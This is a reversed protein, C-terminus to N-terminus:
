SGPIIYTIILKPRVSTDGDESSAFTRQSDVSAAEECNDSAGYNGGARIVWDGVMDTVEVGVGFGAGKEVLFM